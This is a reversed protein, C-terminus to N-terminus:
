FSINTQLQFAATNGSLTYEKNNGGGYLSVNFDISFNYFPVYNIGPTIIFSKDSLNSIANFNLICNEILFRNFSGFFAAYYKGHNNAEYLNGAMWFLPTFVNNSYGSHNYFFEVNASVRDPLTYNFTRGLNISYKPIWKHEIKYILNSETNFLNKTEGRTMSLEGRIDYKRIRSSIDYSYVAKANQKSWISFAMETKDVIFEFKSAVALQNMKDENSSDVFSYFNKQAGFPIHIKLGFVGERSKNLDTFNRREVNILDTPNWFYCRGWQLYQKGLRLYIKRSINADVFFENIVYNNYYKDMSFSNIKQSQLYSDNQPSYALELNLFAKAKDELRVDLLFNGRILSRTTDKTYSPLGGYSKNKAYFFSMAQIDGSFSYAAKSISINEFKPIFTTISKQASHAPTITESDSFLLAEDITESCYLTQYYFLIIFIILIKKKM